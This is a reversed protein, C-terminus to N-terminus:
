RHFYERAVVASTHSSSVHFCLRASTGVNSGALVGSLMEVMLGLGYGKYGATLESGGLPTVGGGFIIKSPDTTQKGDSDVGWRCAGWGAWM